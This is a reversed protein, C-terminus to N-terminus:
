LTQGCQPVGWAVFRATEDGVTITVEDKRGSEIFASEYRKDALLTGDSQVVQFRVGSGTGEYSYSYSPTEEASGEGAAGPVGPARGGGLGGGKEASLCATGIKEEPQGDHTVYQETELFPGSQCGVM